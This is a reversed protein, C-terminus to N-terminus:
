NGKFVPQRKELFASLGERMDNTANTLAMAELVYRRASKVDVDYGVHIAMKTLKLAIPPRKALEEALQLAAPQVEDSPVVQNVLNLKLAEQANINNGLMMIETAKLQGVARLLRSTGSGGPISGLKIEPFGLVATESMIRFDCACILEFGGGIAHGNIASIVPIELDEIRTLIDHIAGLYKRMQLYTSNKVLNLDAGAMFTKGMGTIILVITEEDKKLTELASRTEDILQYTISNLEKPRNFTLIQIPGKKEVLITDFTMMMGGRSYFIAEKL